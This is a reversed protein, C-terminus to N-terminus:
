LRWNAVPSAVRHGEDLDTQALKLYRQVMELTEHGLLAQLTYINGGNRLFQIAFTHRFRHPHTGSVGAREGVSQLMAYLNHRNIPTNRDTAFLPDNAHADPRCNLYKWISKATRPSIRVSREKAGKGFLRLKERKLDADHIKLFCLESCRMGTDLLTLIIAENRDADPLRQNMKSQGRQYARSYRTAHILAKVEFETFPEVLNEEPKPRPVQRMIHKNALPPDFETAWTWLSSLTNHYGHLTANSLEPQSTFFKEVDPTTIGAFPPDDPLSSQFRALRHTYASITGPSLRRAQIHLLFGEIAQSLTLQKASM